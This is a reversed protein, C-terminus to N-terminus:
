SYNGITGVIIKVGKTLVGILGGGFLNKLTAGIGNEKVSAVKSKMSNGVSTWMDSLKGALNKNKLAGFSLKILPLDNSFEGDNAVAQVLANTSAVQLEDIKSVDGDGDGDDIDGSGTTGSIGPGVPTTPGRRPILSIIKDLRTFVGDRFNDINSTFLSGIGSVQSTLDKLDNSDGTSSMDSINKELDEIKMDVGDINVKSIDENSVDKAISKRKEERLILNMHDGGAASLRKEIEEYIKNSAEQYKNEYSRLQGNNKFNELLEDHSINTAETRNLVQDKTRATNATKFEAVRRTIDQALKHINRNASSMINSSRAKIINSKISDIFKIMTNDDFSQLGQISTKYDQLMQQKIYSWFDEGVLDQIGTIKYGNMEFFSVAELTFLEYIDDKHKEFLRGTEGFMLDQVGNEVNEM